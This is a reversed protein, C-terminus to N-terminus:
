WCVINRLGRSFMVMSGVEVGILGEVPRGGVGGPVLRVGRWGVAAAVVIDVRLEVLGRVGRGDELVLVGLRPLCLVLM